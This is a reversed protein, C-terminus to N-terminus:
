DALGVNKLTLAGDRRPASTSPESVEYTAPTVSAIPTLVGFDLPLSSGASTAVVLPVTGDALSPPVTVSLPATPPARWRRPCAASPSWTLGAPTAFHKGKVTVSSGPTGRQPLVATTEPPPPPVSLTSTFFADGKGLNAEYTNQDFVKPPESRGPISLPGARIARRCCRFYIKGGLIPVEETPRAVRIRPRLAAAGPADRGRGPDGRRDRVQPRSVLRPDDSARARRGRRVPDPRLGGYYPAGNATRGITEGPQYRFDGSTDHFMRHMVFLEDLQSLGSGRPNGGISTLDAPM